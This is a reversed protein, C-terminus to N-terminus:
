QHPEKERLFGAQRLQALARDLQEGAATLAADKEIDALTLRAAPRGSSPM